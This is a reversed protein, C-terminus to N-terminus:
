ITRSRISVMGGVVFKGPAKAVEFAETTDQIHRVSSGIDLIRRVDTGLESRIWSLWMEDSQFSYKAVKLAHSLM